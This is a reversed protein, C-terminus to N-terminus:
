VDCMGSACSMQLGFVSSFESEFNWAEQCKCRRDGLRDAAFWVSFKRVLSMTLSMSAFTGLVLDVPRFGNSASGSALARKALQILSAAM